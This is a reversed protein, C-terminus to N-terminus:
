WQSANATDQYSFIFIYIFIYYLYLLYMMFVDYIYINFLIIFIDYIYLILYIYYKYIYIMFIYIYYKYIYIMFIDYVKFQLITLHVSVLLGINICKMRGILLSCAGESTQDVM